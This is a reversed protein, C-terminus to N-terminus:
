VLNLQFQKPFSIESILSYRDINDMRKIFLYPMSINFGQKHEVWSLM